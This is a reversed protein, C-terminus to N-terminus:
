CFSTALISFLIPLHWSGSRSPHAVLYVPIALALKVQPALDKLWLWSVGTISALSGALNLLDKVKTRDM